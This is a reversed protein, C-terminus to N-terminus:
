CLGWVSDLPNGPTECMTTVATSNGTEMAQAMSPSHGDGGQQVGPCLSPVTVSCSPSIPVMPGMGRDKGAGWFGTRCTVATLPCQPEADGFHWKRKLEEMGPVGVGLGGAGSVLVSAVLESAVLELAVQSPFDLHAGVPPWPSLCHPLPPQVRSLSRHAELWTPFSPSSVSLM